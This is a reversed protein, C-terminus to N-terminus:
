TGQLFWPLEVKTDLADDIKKEVGSITALM